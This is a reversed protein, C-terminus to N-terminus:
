GHRQQRLGLWGIVVGAAEVVGMGAATARFLPQAEGPPLHAVHDPSVAVYHHYVGFLLSALMCVALLTFGPRLRGAGLLAAAVLPGAVILTYAYVQQWLALVVGLDSHAAGHGLLVAAHVAVAFVGLWRMAAVRDRM